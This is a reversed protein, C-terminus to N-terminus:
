SMEKSYNYEEYVACNTETEYVEVRHMKFGDAKLAEFFYKAFNEATPRFPVESLMFDEAKLAILTEEKLSGKEYILSHDFEDCKNKLITKLDKFDVLMGRTQGEEDLEEGCIEAAVKWCHGHINKCKGDYGKLFHASDFKCESKLYYVMKEKSLQLMNEQLMVSSLRLHQM